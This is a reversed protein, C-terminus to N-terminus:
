PPFVVLATDFVAATFSDFIFVSCLRQTTRELLGIPGMGDGTRDLFTDDDSSYYDDEEYRKRTAGKDM